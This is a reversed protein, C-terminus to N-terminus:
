CKTGLLDQQTGREPPIELEVNWHEGIWVGLVEAKFGWSAITEIASRIQALHARMDVPNGACDHHGVVVKLRSGHKEISMCVKRKMSEITRPDDNKALVADVGPKTIMDVYSLRFRSTTWEILPLQTRGDTCNIATGFRASEPSMADIGRAAM